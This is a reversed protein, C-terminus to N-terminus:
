ARARPIFLVDTTSHLDRVDVPGGDVVTTEYGLPVDTIGLGDYRAVKIEVPIMGKGRAKAGAPAAPAVPPATRTRTVRAVWRGTGTLVGTLGRRSYARRITSLGPM